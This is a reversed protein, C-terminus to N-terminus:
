GMKVGHYAIVSGEIGPIALGVEGFITNIVAKRGLV